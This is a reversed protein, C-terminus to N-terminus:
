VIASTCNCHRNAQMTRAAPLNWDKNMVTLTVKMYDYDNKVCVTCIRDSVSQLAACPRTSSRVDSRVMLVQNRWASGFWEQLHDYAQPSNSASGHHPATVAVKRRPAPTPPDGDLTGDASFIIGPEVDNEPVYFVLSHKNVTTLYLMETGLSTQKRIYTHELSNLPVIEGSDGGRARRISTRDRYYAEADFWRLRAGRKKAGAAIKLIRPGMSMFELLMLKTASKLSAPAVVRGINALRNKHLYPHTLAQMHLALVTDAATDLIREISDVSLEDTSEERELASWEIGDKLPRHGNSLITLILRAVIKKQLESRSQTKRRRTTREEHRDTESKLENYKEVIIALGEGLEEAVRDYFDTADLTLEKLPAQWTAPLWVQNVQFDHDSELLEALGGAHDDDNHTCIIRHLSPKGGLENQLLKYLEPGNKGGDVLSIRDKRSFLFADGSVPLAIFKSSSNSRTTNRATSKKKKMHLKQIQPVNQRHNFLLLALAVDDLCQIVRKRVFAAKSGSALASQKLVGSVEQMGSGPNSASAGSSSTVM